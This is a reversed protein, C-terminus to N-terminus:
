ALVLGIESEALQQKSGLHQSSEPHQSEADSHIGQVVNARDAFPARDARRPACERDEFREAGAGDSECTCEGDLAHFWLGHCLQKDM